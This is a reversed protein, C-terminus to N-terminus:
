GGCAEAIRRAAEGMREREVASYNVVLCRPRAKLPDSYYESLCSVKVGRERIRRALEEDTYGTEVELLFHLGADAERIRCRRGLPSERIAETMADRQRRYFHRTRALHSEFYGGSLFKALTYQEFSPVTCSCFGLRRGFEDSLEPPLVLYSIRISPALTKSFTNVYLVRGARDISQMTPVPRGTFRFESDYDDEILYRGPQEAAWALLERRRGAPTVTGTPFHHSPSLHATDAGQERLGQVSLGQADLPVACPSVGNIRYVQAVRPYGPDEVAFRKERGLLQVLLSYLYETGAGVVVQEPLVAMGRFRSLYGAIAERLPLAGRGPMPALLAPDRESLVERMLKAWVSFPFQEPRIHNTKLDAFWTPEAPPCAAEPLSEPGAAHARAREMVYAPAANLACVFYGRRQESRLYGELLLQAYANEVTMVSIGLHEALGRKSPMKEGACLTGALIDTRISRYLFEYVPLDGRRELAYTLM